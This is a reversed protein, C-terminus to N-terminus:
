KLNSKIIEAIRVAIETITREDVGETMVRILPETGSPRVLIRGNEGLEEEAESIAQQLETDTYFRLKGEASVEVNILEQPFRTMVSKLEFLSKKSRKMLSLVQIATLQGDGTTAHDSFIIHGSQEGGIKYDGLRMEELVYRDGVKTPIFNIGNEKCFKTFGFNTMVTGVVTSNKLKGRKKMDLACIAIIFDGDVLEGKEDILLCRDADGDFAVGADLRNSVVYERLAEIHTSGCNANINYGDPEASMVHVEAGLERFIRPASESASGNACDVAIKLGKLDSTATSIIYAAYDEKLNQAYIVRGVKNSTPEIYKDPMLIITEIQDELADPLKYGNSSFIKIGNYESPNHSASIMIGADAKVKNVLYAVAPTSTVGLMVANAGMSCLGAIISNVLMDSSIRTDYGVVVTPPNDNKDTLIVSVARGISLALECTLEVNAIGRVGDTGFLRGM